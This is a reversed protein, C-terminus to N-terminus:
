GAFAGDSVPAVLSTIAIGYRNALAITASEDLLITRGAEIALATAGAAHMTEITRPGVTPVDFRKDQQPKAIKVVVFGGRRCLEGARLIAQDTGEIAEVALVARDRVMVSQGVDLRGM